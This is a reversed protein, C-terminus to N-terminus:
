GAKDNEKGDLGYVAMVSRKVQKALPVLVKCIQEALERTPTVVLATPYHPHAPKCRSILPLGFALTKGSGTPARCCVDKGQLMAPITEAQVEFLEKIGQEKLVKVVAPAIGLKSFSM